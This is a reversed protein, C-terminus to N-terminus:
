CGLICIFLIILKTFEEKVERLKGGYEVLGDSTRRWLPLTKEMEGEEGSLEKQENGENECQEESEKQILTTPCVAYFRRSQSNSSSSDHHEVIEDPDILM